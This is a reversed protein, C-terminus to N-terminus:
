PMPHTQTKTATIPVNQAKPGAALFPFQEARRPERAAEHVSECLISLECASLAATGNRLAFAFEEAEGSTRIIIVAADFSRCYAPCGAKFDLSGAGCHLSVHEAHFCRLCGCTDTILITLSAQMADIAGIDMEPPPNSRVEGSHSRLNEARGPM